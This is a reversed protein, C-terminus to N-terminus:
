VSKFIDERSQHGNSPADDHERIFILKLDTDHPVYIKLPDCPSLQHSELGDSFSFRNLKAKRHSPFTVKRESFHDLVLRCHEDPHLVIKYWLRRLEVGPM